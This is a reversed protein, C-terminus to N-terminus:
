RYLRPFSPTNPPPPGPPTEPRRFSTVHKRRPVQPIHPRISIMKLGPLSGGGDKKVMVKRARTGARWPM